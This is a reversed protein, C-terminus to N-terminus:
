EQDDAPAQEQDLGSLESCKCFWCSLTTGDPREIKCHLAEPDGDIDGTVITTVIKSTEDGPGGNAYVPTVAFTFMLLGAAFLTSFIRKM